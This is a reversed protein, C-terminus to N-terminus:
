AAGEAAAELTVEWAERALRQTGKGGGQGGGGATSRASAGHHGQARDACHSM